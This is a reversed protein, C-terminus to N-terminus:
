VASDREIAADNCGGEPKQDVGFILAKTGIGESVDILFKADTAKDQDVKPTGLGTVPAASIGQGPLQLQVLFDPDRSAIAHILAMQGLLECKEMFSITTWTAQGEGIPSLVHPAVLTRPTEPTQTKDSFNGITAVFIKQAHGESGEELFVRAERM